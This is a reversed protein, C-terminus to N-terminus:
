LQQDNEAEDALGAPTVFWRSQQSRRHDVQRIFAMTCATCMGRQLLKFQEWSKTGMHAGYLSAWQGYPNQDVAQFFFTMESAQRNVSGLYLGCCIETLHGTTVSAPSDYSHSCSNTVLFDLEEFYGLTAGKLQFVRDQHVPDQKIDVSTRTLNAIFKITIQPFGNLPHLTIKRNSAELIEVNSVADSSDECPRIESRRQDLMAIQGPYFQIFVADLSISYRTAAARAVVVNQREFAITAEVRSVRTGLVIFTAERVLRFDANVTIFGFKFRMATHGYSNTFVDATTGANPELARNEM